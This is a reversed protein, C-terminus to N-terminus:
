AAAPEPSPDFRQKFTFAYPTPGHESLHDLRALAEEPTPITGAPIWWMALHMSEFKEFWERRRRFYEVHKSKYTFDFLAEVSEWVTLNIIMRDDDPWLKIETSGGSEGDELRWVFGPSREALANVPALLDMFERMTDSDMTDRARGINIQALHLDM